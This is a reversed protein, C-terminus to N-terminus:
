RRWNWGFKDGSGVHPCFSLVSPSNWEYVSSSRM